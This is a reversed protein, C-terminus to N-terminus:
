CGIWVVTTVLGYRTVSSGAAALGSVQTHRTGM